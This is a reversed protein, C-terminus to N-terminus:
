FWQSHPSGAKVRKARELALTRKLERYSLGDTAYFGLKNLQEIVHATKYEQEQLLRM